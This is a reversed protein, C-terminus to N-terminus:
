KEIGLVISVTGSYSMAYRFRGDFFDGSREFFEFVIFGKLRGKGSGDVRGDFFFGEQVSVLHMTM